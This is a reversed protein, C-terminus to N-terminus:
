VDVGLLLKAVLGIAFSVAAVGLSIAAMEAFRQWFPLSQAVATYYNFAMIILIVLMLMTVLAVLSLHNPLLMYPTVLLAVTVLYAIGTYASSKLANKNGEAREALFNSAAMSLTASVGVIIASLAVMRTNALAFTFGVISGTLEVLADNLGLVMSGVYRLREEDIMEILRGEHEIEDAMISAAEPLEALITAMDAAGMQESQEFYRITFTIGFLLSFLKFILVKIVQPRIDRGSYGKWVEYHSAEARAMQEFAERNTPDKQRAAIFEYLTAGTIEDRQFKLILGNVRPSLAPHTSQTQM